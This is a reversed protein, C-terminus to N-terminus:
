PSCNPFAFRCDESEGIAKQFLPTDALLAIESTPIHDNLVTSFIFQPCANGNKLALVTGMPETIPQPPRLRLPGVPPKAFPIGPFQEVPVTAAPLGVITAHPYSITVTPVGFIEPAGCCFGIFASILLTAKM